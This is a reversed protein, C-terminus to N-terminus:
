PTKTNIYTFVAAALLDRVAESYHIGSGIVHLTASKWTKGGDDSTMKDLEIIQIGRSPLFGRIRGNLDPSASPSSPLPEIPALTTM